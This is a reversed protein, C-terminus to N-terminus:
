KELIDTDLLGCVLRANVVTFAHTAVTPREPKAERPDPPPQLAQASALPPPVLVLLAAWAARTM